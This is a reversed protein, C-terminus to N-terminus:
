LNIYTYLLSLLLFHPNQANNTSAVKSTDQLKICIPLCCFTVTINVDNNSKSDM